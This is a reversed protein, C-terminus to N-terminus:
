EREQREIKEAIEPYNALFGAQIARGANISGRDMVPGGFQADAFEALMRRQAHPHTGGMKKFFNALLSVKAGAKAIGHAFPSFRALLLGWDKVLKVTKSPPYKKSLVALNRMARLDNTNLDLAQVVDTSRKSLVNDLNRIMGDMDAGTPKFMPAMIDYMFDSQVGRIAKHNKGLIKKIGTMTELMKPSANAASMGLVWRKLQEPNVEKAVMDAIIKNSNFKADIARRDKQVKQWLKVGDASGKIMDSNLQHTLNDDLDDLLSKLVVTEDVEKAVKSGLGKRTAAAKEAQNRIMLWDQIRRNTVQLAPGDAQKIEGLEELRELLKSVTPMEGLDYGGLNKRSRFGAAFQATETTNVFIRKQQAQAQVKELRKEAARKRSIMAKQLGSMNQARVDSSMDSAAKLIDSPMTQNVPEIGLRDTIEKAKDLPKDFLKGDAGPQRQLSVGDKGVKVNASRQHKLISGGKLGLLDPAIMIASYIGTSAWENGMGAFHAIDRAGEDLKTLPAVVTMLMEEGEKTVPMFTLADRFADMDAVVDKDTENWWNDVLGVMGRVGVIPEAVASNVIMGAASGLGTLQRFYDGVFASKSSSERNVEAMWLDHEEQLQERSKKPSPAQFDQPNEAVYANVRDWGRQLREPEWEGEKSRLIKAARVAEDKSGFSHRLADAQAAHSQAQAAGADEIRQTGGLPAADMDQGAAPFTATMDGIGVSAVPRGAARRIAPAPDNEELAQREARNAQRQAISM